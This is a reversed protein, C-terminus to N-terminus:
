NVGNLEYIRRSIKYLRQVGNELHFYHIVYALVWILMGANVILLGIYIAPHVAPDFLIPSKAVFNGTIVLIFIWLGAFFLTVALHIAREHQFNKLMERHYSALNEVERKDIKDPKPASKENELRDLRGNMAKEYAKLLKYM